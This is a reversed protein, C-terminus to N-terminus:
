LSDPLSKQLRPHDAPLGMVDAWLATFLQGVVLASLVDRRPIWVGDFGAPPPTSQFLLRHPAIPQHMAAIRPWEELSHLWYVTNPGEALLSLPGHRFSELDDAWVPKATVEVLKLAVEPLVTNLPSQGLLVWPHSPSLRECVSRLAALPEPQWLPELAIGSLDYGAWRLLVAVMGLVSKTAPIVREEGAGVVFGPGYLQMLPSDAVNSIPLVPVSVDRETLCRLLSGTQGSQSVAIICAANLFPLRRLAEVPKLVVMARQFHRELFPAAIMLAQYSSGEGVGM